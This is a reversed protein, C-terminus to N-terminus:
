IRILNLNGFEYANLPNDNKFRNQVEYVRDELESLPDIFPSYDSSIITDISLRITKLTNVTNTKLTRYLDSKCVSPNNISIRNYNNLYTNFSNINENISIISNVISSEM